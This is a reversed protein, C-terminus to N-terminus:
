KGSNAIDERLVESINRGVQNAADKIASSIQEQSLAILDAAQSLNGLGAADGATGFASQRLRVSESDEYEWILKGKNRDFIQVMAEIKIFIGLSASTLTCKNLTTTVIFESNDNLDYVPSIRLYKIMNTEIGNSIGKVIMEPQSANRLKRETESTLLTSGIAIAVNKIADVETQAPATPAGFAIIVENANIGVVEEFYIVKKSLDYDKLLNLHSCSVSFALLTLIIITKM